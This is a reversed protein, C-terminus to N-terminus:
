QRGRLDAAEIPHPRLDLFDDADAFVLEPQIATLRTRLLSLPMVQGAAQDCKTHQLPFPLVAAERYVRELALETAMPM